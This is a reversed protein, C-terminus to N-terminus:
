ERKETTVTEVKNCKSRAKRWEQYVIIISTITSLSGCATFLAYAVDLGQQYADLIATLENPRFLSGLQGAGAEVVTLPDISPSTIALTSVLKNAFAAQAASVMICAGLIEFFLTISVISPIDSPAVLSQNISIPTQLAFGIGFGLVVQFGIWESTSASAGFLYILVSGLTALVPGLALWISPYGFKSICTNAVITGFSVCLALPILQIGARAASLGQIAQFQISLFYVAPFYTGDLFFMYIQNLTIESNKFFRTQVMALDGSRWEVVSFVIALLGFGILTGVVPAADWPYSVGGWRMALLYCVLSGLLAFAGPLDMQYIQERKSAAPRQSPPAQFFCVIMASALGGIPLNIWFCWRWTVYQTFIGGLIPGIVSAIGYTAGMCGIYMARKRPPAILAVITFAGSGLAGGGFGAVARGLIFVASSPSAACILTGVEFLSIGVIFTPKLDFYTYAKGWVSQLSANTLFYASGYWGVQDLSHFEDTIRPIATAIITSDLAVLLISLMLSTFVVVLRFGRPHEEGDNLRDPEINQSPVSSSLAGVADLSLQPAETEAM